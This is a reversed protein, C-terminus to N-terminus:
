VRAFRRRLGLAGLGSLFILAAGPVPVVTEFYAGDGAGISIQEGDSDLASFDFSFRGGPAASFFFANPVDISFDLDLLNGASDLVAGVVFLEPSVFDTAFNFAFSVQLDPDFVSFTGDGNDILAGDDFNLAGFFLDGVSVGLGPDGSYTEIETTFNITM